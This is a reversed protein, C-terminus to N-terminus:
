KVALVEFMGFDELQKWIHANADFSLVNSRGEIQEKRTERNNKTETFKIQYYKLWDLSFPTIKKFFICYNNLSSKEPFIFKSTYLLDPIFNM